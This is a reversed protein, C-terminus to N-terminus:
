GDGDSAPLKDPPEGPHFQQHSSQLPPTSIRAPISNQGSQRQQIVAPGQEASPSQTRRFHVREEREKAVMYQQGRRVDNVPRRWMSSLGQEEGKTQSGSSATGSRQESQWGSRQVDGVAMGMQGGNQRGEQAESRAKTSSEPTSTSVDLDSETQQGSSAVGAPSGGSSGSSGEKPRGLVAADNGQWPVKKGGNEMGAGTKEAGDEAAGRGESSSSGKGGREKEVALTGGTPSRRGNASGDGSRGKGSAHGGEKMRGGASGLDGDSARKGGEPGATTAAVSTRSDSWAARSDAKKAEGDWSAAKGDKREQWVLDGGNYSGLVAQASSGSTESNGSSRRSGVAETHKGSGVKSGGGVFDANASSPVAVNVSSAVRIGGAQGSEVAGSSDVSDGSGVDTSGGAMGAKLAASYSTFGGRNPSQSGIQSEGGGSSRTGNGETSLEDSDARSDRESGNECLGNSHEYSKGTSASHPDLYEGARVVGNAEGYAVGNEKTGKRPREEDHSAWSSTSLGASSSGSWSDSDSRWRQATDARAERGRGLEGNSSYHSTSPSANSSVSSGNMPLGVRRRGSSSNPSSSRKAAQPRQGRSGSGKSKVKVREWEGELDDQSKESKQSRSTGFLKLLDEAQFDCWVLYESM